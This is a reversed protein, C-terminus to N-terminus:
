LTVVRGEIDVNPYKVEFICPDKSPYVVSNRTAALVDYSYKSYEGGVKNSIKLDKVIQVGSVQNLLAKLEAINIVQNISRNETSFYDQVVETCKTLTDISSHGQKLVIDYQIGVNVVYADQILMSDTLMLYESMYTKLNEKLLSSAQVLKGDVDYALVYLHITFPDKLSSDVRSNTAYAKAITGYKPPLSLARINYDQLTVVRKQEAFSRLANERIEELSDGDRGGTAAQQNYFTLTDAYSSDDLNLQVPETITGVEVNSSLGSGVLYRLTLTGVPALGYSKSFLFNSPDYAIDYLDSSVGRDTDLSVPNPLYEKEEADSALIGAGFQIELNKDKNFRTVFRRPVKKLELVYPVLESQSGSNISSTFVTDQGLCPVEIWDHGNQDKMDLVGVINSDEVTWTRFKGYSEYTKTVTKVEGSYAEVSKTLVFESPNGNEDTNSVVVDTPDYSSSYKFDVPTKTLFSIGSTSKIISNEGIKCAKTWDPEYSGSVVRVPVRQSVTLKVNSTSTVRPRYGMMYALSYLSTPNKAYQLFTEQISTDTYFSLIDGVYAVMELFMMGPSSETFDGYTDPFYNKAYEILQQRISSFDRGTYKIDRQETAM